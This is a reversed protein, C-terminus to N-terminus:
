LLAEGRAAEGDLVATGRNDGMPNGAPYGMAISAVGMDPQAQMVPICFLDATLFMSSVFLCLMSLLWATAWAAM